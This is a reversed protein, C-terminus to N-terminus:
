QGLLDRPTPSGPVPIDAKLKAALDELYTREEIAISVPEGVFWVEIDRQVEELHIDIEDGLDYMEEFPSIVGAEDLCDDLLTTADAVALVMGTVKIPDDRLRLLGSGAEVVREVYGPRHHVLENRRKGIDVVGQFPYRGHDFPDTGTALKAALGFKEATPKRDISALEQPCALGIFANVFAEAAFAGHLVAM